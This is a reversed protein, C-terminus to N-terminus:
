AKKRAYIYYADFLRPPNLGLLELSRVISRAIRSGIGHAFYMFRWEQRIVEFGHRELLLRLSRASFFSVHDPSIYLPWASGMKVALRSERDGTMLVLIGGSRLLEASRAILVVPDYLHEIVAHSTVLDFSGTPEALNEIGCAHVRAGSFREAVEALPSSPEVGVKSWRGGLARLNTGTNCGVDLARGGAPVLRNITRAVLAARAPWRAQSEDTVLAQQDFHSQLGVAQKLSRVSEDREYGCHDCHSILKETYSASVDFSRDPVRLTLLRTPNSCVLCRQGPPHPDPSLYQCM